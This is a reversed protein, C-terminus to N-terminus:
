LSNLLAVPKRFTDLLPCLEVATTDTAISSMPKAALGWLSDSLGLWSVSQDYILLM